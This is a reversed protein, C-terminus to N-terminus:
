ATDLIVPAATVAETQQPSEATAPQAPVARRWSKYAPSLSKVLFWKIITRPPKQPAEM